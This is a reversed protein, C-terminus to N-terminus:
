ICGPLKPSRQLSGWHPRPCLGLRYVIQHMNSDFLAARTAATKTSKGLFLHLKRCLLLSSITRRTWNRVPRRGTILKEGPATAVMAGHFDAGITLRTGQSVVHCQGCKSRRAMSSVAPRAAISQLDAAVAVLRERRHRHIPIDGRGPPLYCQATHSKM